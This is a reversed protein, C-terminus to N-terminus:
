TLTPGRTSGLVTAHLTSQVSRGRLTVLSPPAGAAGGSLSSLPTLSLPEGSAHIYIYM